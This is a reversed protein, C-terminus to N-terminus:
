LTDSTDSNSSDLNLEPLQETIVWNFTYMEFYNCWDLKYGVNKFKRKCKNLLRSDLLCYSDCYEYINENRYFANILGTTFHKLRENNQIEQREKQNKQIKKYLKKVKNVLLM